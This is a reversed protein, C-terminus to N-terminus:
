AKGELHQQQEHRCVRLLIKMMMAGLLVKSRRLHRQRDVSHASHQLTEVWTAREVDSAEEGVVAVVGVDSVLEDAAVAEVAEGVAVVDVVVVLVSGVVVAVLVEDDVVMGVTGVAVGVGDGDAGEWVDVAASGVAAEAPEEFCRAELVDSSTM